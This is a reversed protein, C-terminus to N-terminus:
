PNDQCASHGSGGLSGRCQGGARDEPSLLLFYYRALDDIQATRRYGEERFLKHTLELRRQRQVEIITACRQSWTGSTAELRVHVVLPCSGVLRSGAFNDNSFSFRIDTASHHGYVGCEASRQALGVQALSLFNLRM